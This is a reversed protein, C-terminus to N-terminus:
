NEHGFDWLFQWIQFHWWNVKVFSIFNGHAKLNHHGNKDFYCIWNCISWLNHMVLFCDRKILVKPERWFHTERDCGLCTRSFLWGIFYLSSKWVVALRYEQFSVVANALNWILIQLNYTRDWLVSTWLNQQIFGCVTRFSYPVSVSSNEEAFHGALHSTELLSLFSLWLDLPSIALHQFKYM